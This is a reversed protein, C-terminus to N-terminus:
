QQEGELIYDVENIYDELLNNIGNTIQMIKRLQENTLNDLEDISSRLYLAFAVELECGHNKGLRNLEIMMEKLLERNM